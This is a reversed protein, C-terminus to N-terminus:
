KTTFLLISFNIEFCFSLDFNFKNRMIDNNPHTMKVPQEMNIFGGWFYGYIHGKNTDM